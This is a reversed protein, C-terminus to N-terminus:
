QLTRLISKEMEQNQNEVRDVQPRLIAIEHSLDKEKEHNESVHPHSNESEDHREQDDASTKGIYLGEVEGALKNKGRQDTAGSFRNGYKQPRRASFRESDEPSEADDEGLGLASMKVNEQKGMAPKSAEEWSRTSPTAKHAPGLLRRSPSFQTGKARSSSTKPFM